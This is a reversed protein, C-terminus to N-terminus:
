PTINIFLHLNVVQNGLINTNVLSLFNYDAITLNVPTPNWRPLIEAYHTDISLSCPDVVLYTAYASLLTTNVIQSSNVVYLGTVIDDILKNMLTSVLTYKNAIAVINNNQPIPNIATTFTSANTDLINQATTTITYPNLLTEDTFQVMSVISYPQGDVIPNPNTVNTLGLYNEKLNLQNLPIARGGVFVINNRYMLFSYIGNNQIIGHQVWGWNTNPIHQLSSNPLGAYVVTITAPDSWTYVASNLYVLGNYLQYDLGEILYLTNYWIYLNGMGVDHAKPRGNYVDFGLDFQAQTLSETFIVASQSTRVYRTYSTINSNWTITLNTGDDVLTYNAGDSAYTLTSGNLYYCFVGFGSLNNLITNATSGATIVLDLNENTNDGPFYMEYGIGNSYTTGALNGPPYSTLVPGTGDPLYSLLQGGITGSNNPFSWNTNNPLKQVKELITLAAYRSYVNTFSSTIVDKTNLAIWTNYACSELNAAQWISFYSLTGTLALARTAVPLNMLDEIYNSDLVATRYQGNNRRYLYLKVNTITQNVDIFEELENLRNNLNPSHLGWDAYTLQRIFSPNLKPFYAGVTNGNSLTGVVYFETETVYVDNDLVNTSAIVKSVGDLTSTYSPLSALTYIDLSILLPDWVCEVVDGIKLSSYAPVGNPLFLGNKYVLCPITSSSNLVNISNTFTNYNNINNVNNIFSNITLTNPLSGGYAENTYFRVYIYDNLLILKENYIYDIALLCNGDDTFQIFTGLTSIMRGHCFGTVMTESSEIFYQLSVWDSPPNTIEVQNPIIKGLEILLYNRGTNPLNIVGWPLFVISIAGFNNTVRNSRIIANKSNQPNTWFTDVANTLLTLNINM